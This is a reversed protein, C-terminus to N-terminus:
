RVATVSAYSGALIMWGRSQDVAYEVVALLFRSMSILDIHQM